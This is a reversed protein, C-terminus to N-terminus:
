GSLSNSEDGGIVGLPHRGCWSCTMKTVEKNYDLSIEGAPDTGENVCRECRLRAGYSLGVYRKERQAEIKQKAYRLLKWVATVEVENSSRSFRIKYELATECREACITVGEDNHGEPHRVIAGAVWSHLSTDLSHVDAAFREALGAPCGSYLRFVVVLERQESSPEKPWLIARRELDPKTPLRFPVVAVASNEAGDLQLMFIVGSAALMKIVQRYHENRLGCVIDRWLFSLLHWSQIEGSRSFRKVEDCLQDVTTYDLDNSSRIFDYVDQEIKTSEVASELKHDVLPRVVDTVFEPQLFVLGSDVFIQGQAQWLEMAADFIGKPNDIKIHDPLKKEECCKIWLEFLCDLTIYAGKPSLNERVIEGLPQATGDRM